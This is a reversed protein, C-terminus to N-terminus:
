VRSGLPKARTGIMFTGAATSLVEGSEASVLQGSMHAMDSHIGECRAKCVLKEGAVPRRMHQVTLGATAFPKIDTLSALVAGGMVSDLALTAFGSHLAGSAEEAIFDASALLEVSLVGDRLGLNGVKLALMAPHSSKFFREVPTM